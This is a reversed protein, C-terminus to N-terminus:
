GNRMEEVAFSNAKNAVGLLEEATLRSFKLVEALKVEVISAGKLSTEAKHRWGDSGHYSLSNSAASKTTYTRCDNIDDVWVPTLPGYSHSKSFSKLYKGDESKIVYM